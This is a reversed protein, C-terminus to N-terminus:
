THRSKGQLYKVYKELFFNDEEVDKTKIDNINIKITKPALKFALTDKILAINKM